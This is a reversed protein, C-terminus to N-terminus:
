SGNEEGKLSEEHSYPEIHILIETFIGEAELKENVKESIDHAEMITLDSDVLIHFDGTYNDFLSRLRIIHVEKVEEFSLAIQKM